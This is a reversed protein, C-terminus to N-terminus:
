ILQVHEHYPPRSLLATHMLEVTATEREKGLWCSHTGRLACLSSTPCQGGVGGSFHFFMISWPICGVKVSLEDRERAEYTYLVVARHAPGGRALMKKFTTIMSLKTLHTLGSKPRVEVFLRAHTEGEM